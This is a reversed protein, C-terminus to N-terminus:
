PPTRPQTSADAPKDSLPTPFLTDNRNGSRPFDLALTIGPMPFSLLGPSPVDGCRKLVALFSGSGQIALVTTETNKFQSGKSEPKRWVFPKVHPTYAEVFSHIAKELQESCYLVREARNKSALPSPKKSKQAVGHLSLSRQSCFL